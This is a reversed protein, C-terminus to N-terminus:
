RKKRRSSRDRTGPRDGADREQLLALCSIVEEHLVRMEARVVSFESRMEGRVASFESHTEARVASFETRMETRVASFENHLETRLQVIQSELATVRAPVEELQKMNEELIAVRRELNADPM